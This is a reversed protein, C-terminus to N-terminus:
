IISESVNSKLIVWCPSLIMSKGPLMWVEWLLNSCQLWGGEHISCTSLVRHRWHASPESKIIYILRTWRRPTIEDHPSRNLSVQHERPTHKIGEWLSAKRDTWNTRSDRCCLSDPAFSNHPETWQRVHMSDKTWGVAGCSLCVFCFWFIWTKHRHM